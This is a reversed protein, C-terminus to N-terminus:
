SKKATLAGTTKSSGKVKAFISLKIPPLGGKRGGCWGCCMINEKGKPKFVIFTHMGADCKEAIPHPLKPNRKLSLSIKENWTGDGLNFAKKLADINEREVAELLKKEKKNM